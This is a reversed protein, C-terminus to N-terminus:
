VVFEIFDHSGDTKATTTKGKGLHEALNKWLNRSPLNHRNFEIRWAGPHSTLLAAACTRGLGHRRFDSKVYFEAMEWHGEVKRVLAFGALDNGSYLLYPFREDEQWYADLYPYLYVGAADKYDPHEDPFPPSNM